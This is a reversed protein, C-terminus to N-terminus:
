DKLKADKDLDKWIKKMYDSMEKIQEITANKDVIVLTGSSKDRIVVTDSANANITILALIIITAITAISLIKKM